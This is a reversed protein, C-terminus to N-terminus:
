LTQGGTEPGEREPSFPVAPLDEEELVGGAVAVERKIDPLSKKFAGYHCKTLTGLKADLSSSFQVM